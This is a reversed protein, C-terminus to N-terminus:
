IPYWKLKSFPGVAHTQYGSGWPLNIEGLMALLNSGYM